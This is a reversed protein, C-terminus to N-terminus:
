LCQQQRSFASEREGQIDEMSDMNSMQMDGTMDIWVVGWAEQGSATGSDSVM